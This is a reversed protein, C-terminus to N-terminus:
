IPEAGNLATRLPEAKNNLARGQYVLKCENMKEYNLSILIKM